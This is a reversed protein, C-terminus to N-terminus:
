QSSYIQNNWPGGMPECCGIRGFRNWNTNNGAWCEGFYQRGITNFGQAKANAICEETSNTNPLRTTLTRDPNDGYCGKYNWGSVTPPPNGYPEKCEPPNKTYSKLGNGIFIPRRAHADASDSTFCISRQNDIEGINLYTKCDQEASCTNRCAQESDGNPNIIRVFKGAFVYDNSPVYLSIEGPNPFSLAYPPEPPTGMNWGNREAWKDLMDDTEDDVCGFYSYGEPVPLPRQCSLTVRKDAWAIEPGYPLPNRRNQMRIGYFEMMGEQQTRRNQSKTKDSILQIHQKVARWNTMKNFNSVSSTNPYATGAKQGGMRLFVKQLCDLTFPPKTTDQLEACFDYEEIAGSRLCLDRAAAQVGGNADSAALDQVKSFSNLADTITIKGTKLGTPDM